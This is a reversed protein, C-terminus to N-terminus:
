KNIYMIKINNKFNYMEVIVNLQLLNWIKEITM